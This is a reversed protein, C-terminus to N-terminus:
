VCLPSSVSGVKQANGSGRTRLFMEVGVCMLM